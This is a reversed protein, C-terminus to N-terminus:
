SPIKKGWLEALLDVLDQTWEGTLSAHIIKDQHNEYEKKVDGNIFDDYRVGSLKLEEFVTINRIERKSVEPIPVKKSVNIFRKEIGPGFASNVFNLILALRVYEYGRDNARIGNHIHDVVFSTKPPLKIDDPIGMTRKWIDRYKSCVNDAKGDKHWQHKNKLPRVWLQQQGKPIVCNDSINEKVSQKLLVYDKSSDYGVISGVKNLAEFSGASVAVIKGDSIYM